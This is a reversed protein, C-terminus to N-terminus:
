TEINNKKLKDKELFNDVIIAFQRAQELFVYHSANKLVVLGSNKILRNMLQADKIPTATDDEGWILLVPVRIGPMLHKLDQNVVKVLVCQMVDQVSQYDQSGFKARFFNVVESRYYNLLPLRFVQKVTKFFYVKLYYSFKRAPKIGASGVLILKNLSIDVAVQIAVRGGFSHGLLIPKEITLTTLFFKLMDAYEKNGWAYSPCDSKGFGPFDIAYVQFHQSLFAQLDKFIYLNCGWGHLLVVPKGLGTVHYNVNVGCLNIQYEM